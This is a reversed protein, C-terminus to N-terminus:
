LNKHSGGSLKNLFSGQDLHTSLGRLGPGGRERGRGVDVGGGRRVGGTEGMEKGGKGRRKAPVKSQEIVDENVAGNNGRGLIEQDTGVLVDKVELGEAHGGQFFGTHFIGGKGESRAGGEGWVGDVLLGTEIYLDLM